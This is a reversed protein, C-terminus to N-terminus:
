DLAFVFTQEESARAWVEGGTAPLHIGSLRAEVPASAREPSEGRSPKLLLYSTPGLVRATEVRM